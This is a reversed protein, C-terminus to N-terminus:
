MEGLERLGAELMVRAVRQNKEMGERGACRAKLGSSTHTVQAYPVREPTGGPGSYVDWRLGQEDLTPGFENDIIENCLDVCENCIYIGPGAILKKVQKQRKGCFSCKLLDGEGMRPAV